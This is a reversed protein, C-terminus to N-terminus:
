IFGEKYRGFIDFQPENSQLDLLCNDSAKNTNERQVPPGISLKQAAERQNPLKANATM